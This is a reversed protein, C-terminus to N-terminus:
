SLLAREAFAAVQAAAERERKWFFHDTGKIIEVTANPLARGLARLEPVPCFPDAEGALLLV